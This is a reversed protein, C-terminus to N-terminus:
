HYDQELQHRVALVQVRAGSEIEYLVVYGTAGAPAVLERRTTSSGDGAKRFSWPTLCLARDITSRLTQIAALIGDVDDATQARDLLFDTLRVLDAEADPTFGVEYSAPRM